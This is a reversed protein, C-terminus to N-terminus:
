NDDEDDQDDDQLALIIERIACVTILTSLVIFILDAMSINTFNM